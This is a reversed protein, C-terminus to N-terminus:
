DSLSMRKEGGLILDKDSIVVVSFPIEEGKKMSNQSRMVAEKLTDYDM